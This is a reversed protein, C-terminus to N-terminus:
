GTGPSETSRNQWIPLEEIKRGHNESWCKFWPCGIKCLVKIMEKPGGRVRRLGFTNFLHMSLRKSDRLEQGQSQDLQYKSRIWVGSTLQARMLFPFQLLRLRSAAAFIGPGSRSSCSVRSPHSAAMKFPRPSFLRGLIMKLSLFVSFGM